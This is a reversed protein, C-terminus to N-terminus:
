DESEYISAAVEALRETWRPDDQNYELEDYFGAFDHDKIKWPDAAEIDRDCHCMEHYIIRKKDSTDVAEFVEKDLYLIYDIGDPYIDSSSLYRMKDNAKEMRGLVYQGKSKRKKTDFTVKIVANLFEPFKERIMENVLNVAEQSAEEFRSM